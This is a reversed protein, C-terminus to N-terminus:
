DKSIIETGNQKQFAILSKQLERCAKDAEHFLKIGKFRIMGSM